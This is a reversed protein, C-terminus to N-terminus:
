GSVQTPQRTIRLRRWLGLVGVVFLLIASLTGLWMTQVRSRYLDAFAPTGGAGPIDQAFQFITVAMVVAAAVCLMSVAPPWGLLLAAIVIALASATGVVAAGVTYSEFGFGPEFTFWATFWALGGIVIGASLLIWAAVRDPRAM